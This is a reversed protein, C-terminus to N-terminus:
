RPARMKQWSRLGLISFIFYFLFLGTTPYMGKLYYTAVALVNIAIWYKWHDIYRRTAIITAWVSFLSIIADSLSFGFHDADGILWTLLLSAPFLGGIAFLHARPPLEKIQSTNNGDKGWNFFGQIALGAFVFQLAGYFRMDAAFLVPIYVVACGFYAVWCLRNGYIALILYIIGCGTGIWELWSM